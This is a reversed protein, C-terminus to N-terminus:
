VYFAIYHFIFFYKTIANSNFSQLLDYFALSKIMISNFKFYRNHIFNTLCTLFYAFLWQTVFPFFREFSLYRNVCLM